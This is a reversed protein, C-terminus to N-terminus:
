KIQIQSYCKELWKKFNEKREPNFEKPIPMHTNVPNMALNKITEERIRECWEPFTERKNNGM